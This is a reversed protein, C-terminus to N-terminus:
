RSRVWGQLAELQAANIQCDLMYDTLAPAIDTGSDEADAGHERGQAQADSGGPTGTSAPLNDGPCYRLRVPKLPRASLEAQLNTVTSQFQNSAANAIKREHDRAAREAKLSANAASLEVRAEALLRTKRHEQYALYGILAAVLVAGVIKAQLGIM